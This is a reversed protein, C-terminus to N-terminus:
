VEPNRIEDVDIWPADVYSEPHEWMSRGAFSALTPYRAGREYM